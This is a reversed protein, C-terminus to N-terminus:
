ACLHNACQGPPGKTVDYFVGVLGQLISNGFNEVTWFALKSNTMQEAGYSYAYRKGMGRASSVAILGFLLLSLVMGIAPMAGSSGATEATEDVEEEQEADTTVDTTSADDSSDESSM